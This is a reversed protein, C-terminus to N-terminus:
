GCLERLSVTLGRLFEPQAVVSSKDQKAAKDTPSLIFVHRLRDSYVVAPRRRNSVRGPNQTHRFAPHAFQNTGYAAHNM